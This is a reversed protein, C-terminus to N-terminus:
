FFYRIAATPPFDKPLMRWQVAGSAIHIIANMVECMDTRCPGEGTKVAPNFPAILEWERDSLDSPYPL